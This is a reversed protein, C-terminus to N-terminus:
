PSSTAGYRCLRAWLSTASVSLLPRPLILGRELFKLTGMSFAFSSAIGPCHHSLSLGRAGEGILNQTRWQWFYVENYRGEFTLSNCSFGIDVGGLRLRAISFSPRHRTLYTRDKVNNGQVHQTQLQNSLDPNPIFKLAALPHRYKKPLAIWVTHWKLIQGCIELLFLWHRHWM